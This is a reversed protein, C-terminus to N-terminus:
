VAPSKNQSKYDRTNRKNGTHTKFYHQSNASDTPAVRVNSSTKGYKELMRIAVPIKIIEPM